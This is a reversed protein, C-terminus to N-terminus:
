KLSLATCILTRVEAMLAQGALDESVVVDNNDKGDRAARRQAVLAYRPTASFVNQYRAGIRPEIDAIDERAIEHRRTVCGFVRRETRIGTATIEVRLSNAPLYIALAAFVVSALMFPAAFGGILALSVVAMANATQLPLLASLGAAPILGCVLAFAGLSIAVGPARLVPFTLVIGDAIHRASFGAGHALVTTADTLGSTPM